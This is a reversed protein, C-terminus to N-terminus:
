RFTRAYKLAVLHGKRNLTKESKGSRRVFLLLCYTLEPLVSKLQETFDFVFIGQSLWSIRENFANAVTLFFSKQPFEKM